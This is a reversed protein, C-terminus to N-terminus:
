DLPLYPNGHHDRIYAARGGLLLIHAYQTESYGDHGVKGLAVGPCIEGVPGDSQQVDEDPEIDCINVTDLRVLEQSGVCRVFGNLLHMATFRTV